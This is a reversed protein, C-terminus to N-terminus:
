QNNPQVRGTKRDKARGVVYGTGGGLLGGIIAGQGHNKDILAGAVAGAGAGILTGKAASSWGKKAPAQTETAAGSGETVTNSSAGINREARREGRREAAAIRAEEARQAQLLSDKRAQEEAVARQKLAVTDVVVLPQAPKQSCASIMAAFGLAIVIKKMDGLKTHLTQCSTLYFFRALM